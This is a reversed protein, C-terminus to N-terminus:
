HPPLTPHNHSRLCGREVCSNLEIYIHVRCVGISLASM